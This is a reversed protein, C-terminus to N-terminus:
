WNRKANWYGYSGFDNQIIKGEVTRSEPSFFGKSLYKKKIVRIIQTVFVRLKPHHIEPLPPFKWTYCESNKKKKCNTSTFGLRFEPM